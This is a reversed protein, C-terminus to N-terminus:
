RSHPLVGSGPTTGSKTLPLEDVLEVTQPVKYASLEARCYSLIEATTAGPDAVVASAIREGLDGSKQLACNENEFLSDDGPQSLYVRYDLGAHRAIELTHQLCYRYVRAAKDAGIDPILRTKVLGPRPPKAFLGLGVM